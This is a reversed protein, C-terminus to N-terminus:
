RRRSIRLPTASLCCNTWTLIRGRDDYTYATDYLNNAGADAFTFLLDGFGPTTESVDLVHHTTVTDLTTGTVHGDIPSRALSLTPFVGGVDAISTMLGDRDRARRVSKGGTM